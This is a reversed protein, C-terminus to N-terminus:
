AEDENPEYYEVEIDREENVDQMDAELSKGDGKDEDVTEDNEAGRCLSLGRIGKESRQLKTLRRVVQKRARRPRPVMTALESIGNEWRFNRWRRRADDATQLGLDDAVKQWDVGNILGENDMKQRIISLLLKYNEEVTPM